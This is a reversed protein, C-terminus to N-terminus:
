SATVTIGASTAGPNKSDGSYVATIVHAGATFGGADVYTAVGNVLAIAGGVNTVGDKFQVTGTPTRDTNGAVTATLTVSVAHVPALSSAAAVVTTAGAAPDGTKGLAPYLKTDFRALLAGSKLTVPDITTDQFGQIFEGTADETAPTYTGAM